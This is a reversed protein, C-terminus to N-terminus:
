EKTELHMKFRYVRPIAPDFVLLENHPTVVIQLESVPAGAVPPAPATAPAAAGAFHEGLDADIKRQGDLTWVRIHPPADTLTFVFDDSVAFGSMSHSDGSLGDTSIWSAIWMGEPSYKEIRGTKPFAVFVSDEKAPEVATPREDPNADKPVPWSKMLRGQTDFKEIRSHTPDPVYLKGDEDVSIGLQGTFHPQPSFQVPKFFTGDPFFIRIIGREADAVYIAGGHDVAIGSARRLSPDEFSLLPTGKSEYKHV